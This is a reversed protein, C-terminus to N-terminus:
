RYPKIKAVQEKIKDINEVTNYDTPKMVGGSISGGTAGGKGLTQGLGLMLVKRSPIGASPDARTTVIAGCAGMYCSTGTFSSGQLTNATLDTRSEEKNSPEDLIFGYVVSGDVSFSRIKSKDINIGIDYNGSSYGQGNHLSVASSGSAGQSAGAVGGSTMVFDPEFGFVHPYLVASTMLGELVAKKSETSLQKGTYFMSGLQDDLAKSLKQPTTQSLTHKTSESFSKYVWKGGEFVMGATENLTKDSAAQISNGGRLDAGNKIAQNRSDLEKKTVRPAPNSGQYVPKPKVVPKPKEPPVISPLPKNGKLNQSDWKYNYSKFDQDQSMVQRIWAGLMPDINRDVPLILGGGTSKWKAGNEYDIYNKPEGNSLNVVTNSDDDETFSGKKFDASRLANAIQERTWKKKNGQAKYLQDVVWYEGKEPHLQRNNADVNAAMGASSVDLGATTGAGVLAVSTIANATSQAIDPSMGQEVLKDAMKQELDSIVPAATAVGGTTLAGEVSGTGLAGLATHAAVRYAGGEKWNHYDQEHVQKYTQVKQLEQEILQRQKPDTTQPLANQLSQEYTVATEYPKTKTKAFDGVAKPAEKGFEKTIQTQANLEETVKQEDFSNVLPENLIDRTGTTAESKGAMGTVGAFTTSTQDDGDTGYGMGNMGGQPKGNTSGISIGAQISDGEYRSHNIIDQTEIGQKFVTKNDEPTATTLAGGIFKGKGGVVLDSSQTAIIAQENVSAYDSSLNTRGGNVSVSSTTGKLDLDANFGISQQKGEYAATDKRSIVKLDGGM